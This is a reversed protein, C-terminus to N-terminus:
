FLTGTSSFNSEWKQLKVVLGANGVPSSLPQACLIGLNLTVLTVVNVAEIKERKM